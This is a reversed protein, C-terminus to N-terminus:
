EKVERKSRQIPNMREFASSHRCPGGCISVLDCPECARTCPERTYKLLSAYIDKESSRELNALIYDSNRLCTCPTIDFSPLVVMKFRGGICGFFRNPHLTDPKKHEFFCEPFCFVDEAFIPINYEKKLASIQSAVAYYDSRSLKLDSQANGTVRVTHYEAGTIGIECVKKLIDRIQHKNHQTLTCLTTTDVNHDTLLRLAHMVKQLSRPSASIGEFLEDAADLSVSADINLDALLRAHEKTLLTGNTVLDLDWAYQSMYELLDKIDDRLLPEGGSIFIKKFHMRHLKDVADELQDLTPHGDPSVAYCYECNFNCKSTVEFWVKFPLLVDAHQTSIGEEQYTCPLVFQNWYVHSDETEFWWCGYDTVRCIRFTMEYTLVHYLKLYKNTKFIIKM